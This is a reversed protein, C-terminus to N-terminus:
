SFYKAYIIRDDNAKYFDAIRVVEEYHQKLYFQRTSEYKPQSSTEIILLNGKEEEIKKEVWRMLMKGYGRGQARPSVAIWYLDYTAETLPTPGWTAYGVVGGSDDEIVDVLYDKQGPKSLFLDILEEAVSIEALTFMETEHLLRLVEKKDEINMARIM